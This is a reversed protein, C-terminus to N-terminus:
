GVSVKLYARRLEFKSYVYTPYLISTYTLCSLESSIWFGDDTNEGLLIRPRM